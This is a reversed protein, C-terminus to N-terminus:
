CQQRCGCYCWSVKHNDGGPLAKIAQYAATHARCMNLLAVGATTLGLVRGPPYAGFIFGM